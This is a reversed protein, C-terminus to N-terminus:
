FNEQRSVVDNRTWLAETLSQQDGPSMRGKENDVVDNVLM